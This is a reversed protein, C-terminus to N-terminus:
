VIILQSQLWLGISIASGIFWHGNQFWWQCDSPDALDVTSLMYVLSCMTGGCTVTFYGPGFGQLYGSLFLLTVMSISVGWLLTKTHGRFYVAMSRVGARIDDEVDLQAYITDYVITWCATACYFALLAWGDCHTDIGRMANSMKEIATGDISGAGILVGMAFQVGLVLQPFDMFRKTFPYLAMLFVDPVAIAWCLKPLWGLCVLAIATLLGTFLLGQMPSIARRAIPRLRCRLVQRDYERDLVDNWACIASRSFLSGIFLVANLRLVMSAPSPQKSTATAYLTGFLHPFYVLFFGNPRHIRALEGYSVLSRPLYSLVGTTPPSYSPIPTGIDSGTDKRPSHDSM